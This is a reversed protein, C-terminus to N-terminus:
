HTDGTTANTRPELQGRIAKIKESIKSRDRIISDEKIEGGIGMDQDKYTNKLAQGYLELALEKIGIETFIDGLLAYPLYRDPSYITSTYLLGISKHKDGNSYAEMAESYITSSLTAAVRDKMYDVVLAGLLAGLVFAIGFVALNRNRNIM